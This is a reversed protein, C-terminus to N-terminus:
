GVKKDVQGQMDNRLQGISKRITKIKKWKLFITSTVVVNNLYLAPSEILM